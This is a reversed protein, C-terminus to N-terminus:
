KLRVLGELVKVRKELSTLRRKLDGEEKRSKRVNRLTADQPSRRVADKGHQVYTLRSM